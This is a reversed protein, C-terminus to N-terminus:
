RAARSRKTSKARAAPRDMPRAAHRVENQFYACGRAVPCPECRPASSKCLTRGHEQLLLHAEQMVSPVPPLAKAAQRSAAYMKSYSKAEPVLGLRVLVRLGNSEPALLAQRGTFLLIKEAGPEGIGPFSRL